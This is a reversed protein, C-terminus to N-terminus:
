SSEAISQLLNTTQQLQNCSRRRRDDISERLRETRKLVVDTMSAGSLSSSTYSDGALSPPQAFRLLRFVEAAAYLRTKQSRAHRESGSKARHWKWAQQVLVVASAKCQRVYRYFRAVDLVTQEQPSLQLADILVVRLLCAIVMGGIIGGIAIVIKGGLTWPVTDGYGVGTITVITLWFADGASTETPNSAREFFNLAASTIFWDIGLLTLTSEFPFKQFSFKITLWISSLDIRNISGILRAEHSVSNLGLHNRLVRGLLYVRTFVVVDLQDLCLVDYEGWRWIKRDASLLPMHSLCVLVELLFRSRLGSYASFFTADPPLQKAMIKINCVIRYRMILAYLLLGSTGSLVGKLMIFLTSYALSDSSFVRGEEVLQALESGLLEGEVSVCLIGIVALLLMFTEWLTQEEIMKRSRDFSQVTAITAQWAADNSQFRHRLQRTYVAQRPTSTAAPRVHVGVYQNTEPLTM